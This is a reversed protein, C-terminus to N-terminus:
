EEKCHKNYLSRAREYIQRHGHLSSLQMAVKLRECSIEGDWSKYPYRRTSPDLFFDTPAKQRLEPDDWWSSYNAGLLRANPDAGEIVLSLEKFNARKVRHIGNLKETDVVVGVSVSRIPSPEMKLLSLLKEHGAKPIRVTAIIGKKEESYQADVIIGAINEVNYKHDILLPKGILTKAEAKLVEEPFVITGTPREIPSTSIALVDFEVYEETERLSNYSVSFDLDMM